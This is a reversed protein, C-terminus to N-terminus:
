FRHLMPNIVNGSLRHETSDKGYVRSSFVFQGENIFVEISSRDVFIRFSIADAELRRVDSSYHSRSLALVNGKKSFVAGEGFCDFQFDGDTEFSLEFAVGSFDSDRLPLSTKRLGDIEEIPNLYLYGDKLSLERPLTMQNAWGETKEPCDSEWMANWGILIRRGREDCFTQAAYFDHGYDLETFAGHNFSPADLDLTGIFYGCQHLNHYRDDDPEMGQPSLLLIDQGDLSFIDPCEWMWGHRGTEGAIVGRETWHLADDSAYLVVKGDAEDRTGLIMYFRGDKEWVKPDRVHASGHRPIESILPNRDDKKFVKGDVSTALCQVQHLAEKKEDLWTNGTYFLHLVGDKVLASGSFVGDRDYDQDPRLAIPKNEWHILDTSTAHGWHMDDWEVGFPHYQYFMHYVGDLQCLGNPDNMWGFPPAFHYHPRYSM